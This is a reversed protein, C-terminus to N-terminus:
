DTAAASWGRGSWLAVPVIIVAVAAVVQVLALTLGEASSGHRDSLAGTIWPGLGVGVVSAGALFLANVAGRLPDPTMPQLAILAVAAALGSGAVFVCIAIAAGTLSAAALLGAAALLSLGLGAVLVTLPGLRREGGRGLLWGASLHGAPAALLVLGGVLLAADPVDLGFQRHIISPLWAGASQVSLVCGAGAIFLGLVKRGEGRLWRLAEPLGSAPPPAWAGRKRAVVVLGVILILNPLVLMLTAARWPVLGMVTQGAVALLVAGGLFLGGSRGIASGTTFLSVARARGIGVAGSGLVILAAPAFAAQGVGLMMRAGMMSPYDPALAFGIGGLTWVVMSGAMLRFPEIRRVWHGAALLAAAYTLAFAPGQLAGIQGDSLGFAAKIPAVVVAPAARDVFASFQVVALLLVTGLGVAQAPAPAAAGSLRDSSM